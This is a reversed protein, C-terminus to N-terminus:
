GTPEESLGYKKIRYILVHRPISLFKATKSKNWGCKDLADVILKKEADHFTLHESPNVVARNPRPDFEGFDGPLDRVALKNSKRLLVMREILNQLERVNGPWHHDILTDMLRADVSVGTDKAVKSLFADVLLPIDEKRERLSPVHIPVVNLRYYLDDRFRGDRVLNEIDANTAAVVRVDIDRTKEAGIPEIIHEQLVRLLKAQLNMALDAIEDLLMTGGDALEFKGKKDRVAGTFAGRMHGFLESELLDKPIAACNVAVFERDNRHSLDHITRAVLEKGTGSEGTLLVTADTAAITKVTSMMAKFAPSAGILKGPQETQKLRSKLQRNERELNDFQLAKDLALFLEEDEFPKTIYDFAGLKVAQVAQSVTAHATILIVKLGPRLRSAQDLLEIGDIKPMRIDSLLLDFPAEKLKELAEQGDKATAVELGRQKLKFELVRRVSSDDDALLVRM